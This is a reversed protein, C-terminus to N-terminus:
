KKLKSQLQKRAEVSYPSIGGRIVEKLDLQPLEGLGLDRYEKALGLRYAKVYDTDATYIIGNGVYASISDVDVRETFEKIKDLSTSFYKTREEVPNLGVETGDTYGMPLAIRGMLYFQTLEIEDEIYNQGFENYAFTVLTKTSSGTGTKIEKYGMITAVEFIGRNKCMMFKSNDPHRSKFDEVFSAYTSYDYTLQSIYPLIYMTCLKQGSSLRDMEIMGHAYIFLKAINYCSERTEPVDRTGFLVRITQGADVLTNIYEIANNLSESTFEKGKDTDVLFESLSTIEKSLNRHAMVRDIVDQRVRVPKRITRAFYKFQQGPEKEEYVGVEGTIYPKGKRTIAQKVTFDKRDFGLEEFNMDYPYQIYDLFASKLKGDKDTYEVLGEEYIAEMSNDEVILNTSKILGLLWQNFADRSLPVDTIDLIVNDMDPNRGYSTLLDKMHRKRKDTVHFPNYFDKMKVVYFEQKGTTSSVENELVM